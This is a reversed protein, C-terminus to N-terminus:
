ATQNDSNQNVFDFESVIAKAELMQGYKHSPVVCPFLILASFLIRLHTDLFFFVLNSFFSIGLALMFLFVKTKYKKLDQMLWYFFLTWGALKLGLNLKSPSETPSGLIGLYVLIFYPVVLILTCVLQGKLFNKFLSLFERGTLDFISIKNYKETVARLAASEEEGWLIGKAYEFHSRPLLCYECQIENLYDLGCVPCTELTSLKTKM